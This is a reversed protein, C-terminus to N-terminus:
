VNDTENNGNLEKITDAYTALATMGKPSLDYVGRVIRQFWGYFDKQLITGAKSVGSLERIEALKLPGNRHLLDACRLADQRYATVIPRRTTGGQNPDGVRLSFERLLSEKRKKMKRPAYPLPDLHPEVWPKDNKPLHVSLLGLGLLRCLRIIDSYRQRFRLKRTIAGRHPVALYVWDTIRKRDVGQFLLALNFNTKLEVVVPEEDGRIAVLDCSEIEGKVEYGQNKLYSKVPEYLDTETSITSQKKSVTKKVQKM